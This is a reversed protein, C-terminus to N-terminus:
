GGHPVREKKLRMTFAAALAVAACLQSTSLGLWGGRELDDGRLPEMALRLLAYGGLYVLFLRGPRARLRASLLILAGCLLLLGLAEYAQVPHRSAGALEVVLPWGNGAPRGYCCGGLLCGVRGIAHGLALGPAGADAIAALPLRYARCYIWAALAGGAFGGYFVHGPQRLLSPDAWVARAHVAVYLLAAGLIGGGFGLLGTALADFRPVGYAPARRVALAIGAAVGAVICVGYAHFPGLLEPHL